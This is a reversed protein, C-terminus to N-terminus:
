DAPSEVSMHEANAPIFLRCHLGRDAMELTASGGLEFATGREILEVGFGGRERRDFEVQPPKAGFHRLM